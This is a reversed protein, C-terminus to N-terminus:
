GIFRTNFQMVNEVAYLYRDGANQISLLLDLFPPFLYMLWAIINHVLIVSVILKSLKIFADEWVVNKVVKRLIFYAGFLYLINQFLNGLFRVDLLHNII